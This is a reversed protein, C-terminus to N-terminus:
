GPVPTVIGAVPTGPPGMVPMVVVPVVVVPVVMVIGMVAVPVVVAAPMVVIVIVAVYPYVTWGHNHVDLLIAVPGGIRSRIM